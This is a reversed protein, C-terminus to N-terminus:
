IHRKLIQNFFENKFELTPRLKDNASLCWLHQLQFHKMCVISPLPTEQSGTHAGLLFNIVDTFLDILADDLWGEENIKM